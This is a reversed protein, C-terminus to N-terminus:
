FGVLQASATGSAEADMVMVIFGGILDNREKEKQQMDQHPVLPWGVMKTHQNPYTTLNYQTSYPTITIYIHYGSYSNDTNIM